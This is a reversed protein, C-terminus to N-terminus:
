FRKLLESIPPIGSNSDKESLSAAATFVAWKLAEPLSVGCEAAYLIGATFADGAGTTGKIYGDPLHVSPFEYFQGDSDMGFGGEPAHIVAWTSVGMSLLKQLAEPIREPLLTGDAERLPIGTIFGAELENVTCYDTYRLAPPVIRAYKEATTTVADVSTKHGHAKAEHLLRALHTGYEADEADLAPCLCMYGLHVLELDMEDWDIDNGDYAGNGGEHYFFTRTHASESYMVNTFGTKGRRNIRSIDINPFKRFESLLYDGEEDEGILCSAGLPFGSDLRAISFLTNSVIGGVSLRKEARIETLASEAPYASIPYTIDVCVQGGILIGKRM